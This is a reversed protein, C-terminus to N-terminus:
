IQTYWHYVIKPKPSFLQNQFAEKYELKGIHFKFSAWLKLFSKSICECHSITHQRLVATSWSLYFYFFRFHLFLMSGSYFALWTAVYSLLFLYFEGFTTYRTADLWYGDFTMLMILLFSYASLSMLIKSVAFFSLFVKWFNQIWRLFEM